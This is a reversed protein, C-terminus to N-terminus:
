LLLGVRPLRRAINWAIWTPIWTLSSKSTQSGGAPGRGCGRWRLSRRRLTCPGSQRRGASLIGQQEASRGGAETLRIMRELPLSSSFVNLDSIKVPFEKGSIPDYGLVLSSIEGRKTYEREGLKGEVVLSFKNALSDLSLCMRTWQLPFFVVRLQQVLYVSHLYVKYQTYTSAAFLEIEGQKMGVDDLLTLVKASTSRTTWAGVMFASCITFSEPLVGAELTAGTHMDNTDPQDDNDASFDFIKSKPVCRPVSCYEWRKEPDTTYCWVGFSDEVHNRCYNHEGLDTFPHEHPQSASWMQCTRGGETVNMKGSYNVGPPDGELCEQNGGSQSSVARPERRSTRAEKEEEAKGNRARRAEAPLEQGSVSVSFLLWLLMLFLAMVSNLWSVTCFSLLHYVLSGLNNISDSEKDPQSNKM